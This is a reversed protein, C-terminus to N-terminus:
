GILSAGFGWNSGKQTGSGSGQQSFSGGFDMGLLAAALSSGLQEQQLALNAFQPELASLQGLRAQEMNRAAMGFKGSRGGGSGLMKDRLGQWGGSYIDNVQQRAQTKLPELGAQPQTLKGQITDSLLGLVSSQEPLLTKTRTGYQSQQSTSSQSSGGVNFGM